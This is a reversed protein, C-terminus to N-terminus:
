PVMARDRERGRSGQDNLGLARADYLAPDHPFAADCRGRQYGTVAKAPLPVLILQVGRPRYSTKAPVGADEAFQIMVSVQRLPAAATEQRAANPRRGRGFLEVRIGAPAASDAPRM